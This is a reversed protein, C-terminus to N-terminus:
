IPFNDSQVLYSVDSSRLISGVTELAMHCEPLTGRYLLDVSGFSAKFIKGRALNSGVVEVVGGLVVSSM